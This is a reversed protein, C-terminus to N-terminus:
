VCHHLAMLHAVAADATKGGRDRSQAGTTRHGDEDETVKTVLTCLVVHCHLGHEINNSKHEIEFNM